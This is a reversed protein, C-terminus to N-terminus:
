RTAQLELASALIRDKDDLTLGEEWVGPLRLLLQCAMLAHGARKWRCMEILSDLGQREIEGLLEPNGSEAGAGLLFLAKNRDTWTGSNLFPIFRELDVEINLDPNANSFEAIVGLARVANNRVGEHADFAARELERAVMQKDNAYGLVHAAAVRHGADSSERLVRRLVSEHEAALEIFREQIVRLRANESLAHGDDHTEGGGDGSRLLDSLTAMAEEYTEVIVQPLRIEGKPAPLADIGPVPAEQVGVYVALLGRDGCCVYSIDVAIVGLGAAVRDALANKDQLSGPGSEPIPDGEEYPLHARLEEETITRLGFTDIIEIPPLAQAQTHCTGM